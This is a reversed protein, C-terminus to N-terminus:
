RPNRPVPGNRRRFMARLMQGELVGALSEDIIAIDPPRPERDALEALAQPDTSSTVAYGAAALARSLGLARNASAVVVVRRQCRFKIRDLFGQYRDSDRPGFHTLIVGSGAITQLDRAKDESVTRVVRARCRVAQGSTDLPIALQLESGVPLIRDIYLGSWSIDMALARQAGDDTGTASSVVIPWSVPFRPAGRAPPPSLSVGADRARRLLKVLQTSKSETLLTFSVSFGPSQEADSDDVSQVDCVTGTVFLEDCGFSLGLIASDGLRLPAGSAVRIERNSVYRVRGPLWREGRLFRIRLVPTETGRAHLRDLSEGSDFETSPLASGNAIRRGPTVTASVASISPHVGARAAQSKPPTRPKPKASKSRLGHTDAAGWSSRGNLDATTSHKRQQHQQSSETVIDKAVAATQVVAGHVTTITTKKRVHSYSGVSDQASRDVSRAPAWAKKPSKQLNRALDTAAAVASEAAHVQITYRPLEIQQLHDREPISLAALEFCDVALGHLTSTLNSLTFRSTRSEDVVLVILAHDDAECYYGQAALSLIQQDVVELSECLRTARSSFDNISLFLESLVIASPSM